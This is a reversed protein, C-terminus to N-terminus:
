CTLFLSSCFLSPIRTCSATCSICASFASSSSPLPILGSRTSGCAAVLVAKILGHALLYISAFHKGGDALHETARYLHSIIFEHRDFPLDLELFKLSIQSLASPKVFWLIAGGIAELLGDIGKLTIAARFSDHLLVKSRSKAPTHALAASQIASNM